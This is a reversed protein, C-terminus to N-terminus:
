VLLYCECNLLYAAIGTLLVWLQSSYQVRQTKYLYSLDIHACIQWILLYYESILPTNFKVLKKYM